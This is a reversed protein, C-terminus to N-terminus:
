ITFLTKLLLQKVNISVFISDEPSLIGTTFIPEDCLLYM